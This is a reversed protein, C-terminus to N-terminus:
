SQDVGVGPPDAGDAGRHLAFLLRAQGLRRMPEGGNGAGRGAMDDLTGAGDHHWTDPTWVQVGDEWATRM